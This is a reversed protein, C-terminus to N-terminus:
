QSIADKMTCLEWNKFDQKILKWGMPHCLTPWKEICDFIKVSKTVSFQSKRIQSTVRWHSEVLDWPEQNKNLWEISQDIVETTDTDLYCSAKFALFFVFIM